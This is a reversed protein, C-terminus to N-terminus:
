WYHGILMFSVFQWECGSFKVYGDNRTKDRKVDLTVPNFSQHQDCAVMRVFSCRTSSLKSKITWILINKYITLLDFWIQYESLVVVCKHQWCHLVFMLKFCKSFSTHLEPKCVDTHTMLLVYCSHCVSWSVGSLTWSWLGSHKILVALSANCDPM